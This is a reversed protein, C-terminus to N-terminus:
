RLHSEPSVPDRLFDGFDNAIEAADEWGMNGCDAVFYADITGASIRAVCVNGCGDMCLPMAHPMSRQVQHCDDLIDACSFFQLEKYSFWLIPGDSTELLLRLEVPLTVNFKEEVKRIEDASAGAPLDICEARPQTSIFQALYNQMDDGDCEIERFFILPGTTNADNAM